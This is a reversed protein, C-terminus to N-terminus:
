VRVIHPDTPRLQAGEGKWRARSDMMTKRMQSTISTSGPERWRQMGAKLSETMSNRCFPVIKTLPMETPNFRIVQNRPTERFDTKAFDEFRFIRSPKEVIGPQFQKIVDRTALHLVYRLPVSLGMEWDSPNQLIHSNFCILEPAHQQPVM